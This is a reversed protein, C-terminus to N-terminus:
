RNLRAAAQEDIFWNVVGDTPQIRQAPWQELDPPGELVAAVAEAKNAGTVLFLVHRADNFVAPTLTLRQSPRDEYDATVGKVATEPDDSVPSDPFLSATHGDSGLGLM